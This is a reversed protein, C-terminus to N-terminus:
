AGPPFQELIGAVAENIKQSRKEPTANPDVAGQAWGRWVVRESKADVFDVVLTGQTWQRVDVTTGGYWGRYGWGDYYRNIDVKEQLAGYFNVLFDPDGSTAKRYGKGELTRELASMVRQEALPSIGRNVQSEDTAEVFAYTRFEGLSARPDFDANYSISSCASVALALVLVSSVSVVCTQPNM